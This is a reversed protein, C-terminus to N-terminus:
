SDIISSITQEIVIEKDFLEIMRNNAKIGMLCRENKTKSIMERMALYLSHADKPECLLGSEFPIIAERCGPINTTIIPRGSAACELNTNAMGEHYSPLVFCDCQKIYPRVDDQFGHYYLWGDKQYQEIQKSYDEEFEGIVDLCCDYEKVLCKMSAFLEDIGKEKMVRGIFLFRFSDNNPYEQYCFYNLNVGAGNLVKSQHRGIIGNKLFIGENESNEFLVVKARKGAIKYLNVVLIKLWNDNQFATGLGTINMAYQIKLLRSVIGGYINPKITYTIVLDPKETRLLKLYDLILKSDIIPNIGRRDIPTEIFQCGDKVLPEVMKGYPLSIIVENDNLLEHILERRFKYLGVDNNALILIKM